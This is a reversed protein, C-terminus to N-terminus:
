NNKSSLNQRLASARCVWYVLSAAHFLVLCHTITVYDSEYVTLSLILLAGSSLALMLFETWTTGLLVSLLKRM